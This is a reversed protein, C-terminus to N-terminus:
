SESPEGDSGAAGSPLVRRPPLVVPPPLPCRTCPGRLPVALTRGLALFAGDLQNAKQILKVSSGYRLALAGLTDGPKVRHMVVNDAPRKSLIPQIRRGLEQSRPAFFRVHFHDRHGRVHRMLGGRGQKFISAMVEPPEGIKMAHRRLVEQVRRDVLIVEVDTLSAVARVLTWCAAVDILKERAARPARMDVGPQYFFGLDADRGSQHSQHPKLWGGNAKSIHNVRLPPLLPHVRRVENAVTELSAITEAAGWASDPDIVRWAESTQMQVGNMLRGAEPIGVSVSGLTGLDEAFRKALDDDTLDATYLLEDKERAPLDVLSDYEVADDELELKPTREPAARVQVFPAVTPAAPSASLAATLLLGLM